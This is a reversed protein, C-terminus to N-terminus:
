LEYNVKKIRAIKKGLFRAGIRAFQESEDSVYYSYKAKGTRKNLMDNKELILRVERAVENASDILNVKPGVVKAIVKKLLPYHTCALILTDINKKKFNELYIGAVDRTIKKDLWGEEVLPVFLPCSRSFTKNKKDLRKIRKEYAMSNITSKTGIIGIKKNQSVELAKKVAPEIVGLVPINLKKKLAQLSLSSSTNCAVIIIKVNRKSLFAANDLSFRTITKKSKNGYPVRATDGFYVIDEHPLQKIVEKAVTLGGLGSDFIGIPKNANKNKKNQLAM